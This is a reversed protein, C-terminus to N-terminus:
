HIGPELVRQHGPAVLEALLLDVLREGLEHDVAALDVGVVELSEHDGLLFGLFLCFFLLLSLVFMQVFTFLSVSPSISSPGRM